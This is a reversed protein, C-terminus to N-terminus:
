IDKALNKKAIKGGWAQAKTGKKGGNYKKNDSMYGHTSINELFQFAQKKADSPWTHVSECTWVAFREPVGYLTYLTELSALSQSTVKKSLSYHPSDPRPIDASPIFVFFGRPPILAAIEYYDVPLPKLIEDIGNGVYDRLKPIHVYVGAKEGYYKRVQGIAVPDEPDKAWTSKGTRFTWLSSSTILAKIRQDLAAGFVSCYGGYCHGMVYINEKDVFPLTQLYDVSRSIDWAAKGMASWNPHKKYFERTDWLRGDRAREGITDMDLALTVYGHSVADLAYAMDKDPTDNLGIGAVGVTCDKGHGTSTHIAIIAPKVRPGNDPVLLYAYIADDPESMYSIHLRRYGPFQREDLIRPTIPCRHDPFQGLLELTKEMISQRITSWMQPTLPKPFLCGTFDYDFKKMVTM